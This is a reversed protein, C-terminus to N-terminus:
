EDILAVRPKTSADARNERRDTEGSPESEKEVVIVLRKYEGEPVFPQTTLQKKLKTILELTNQRLHLDPVEVRAADDITLEGDDSKVEVTCSQMKTANFAINVIEEAVTADTAGASELAAIIGGKEARDMLFAKSKATALSYGAAVAAQCQSMGLLRNKRFQERKLWDTKKDHAKKLNAHDAKIQKKSRSKKSKKGSSTPM